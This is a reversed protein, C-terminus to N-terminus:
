HVSAQTTRPRAVVNALLMKEQGVKLAPSITPVTKATRTTKIHFQFSVAKTKIIIATATAIKKTKDM